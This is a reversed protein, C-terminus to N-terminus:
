LKLRSPEIIYELKAVIKEITSKVGFATGCSVCCFPEEEKIMAPGGTFAAFSLRPELGMVKEPCTARCLGCQVCLGEDFRLLPGAEADAFLAAEKALGATMGQELGVRVAELARKGAGGRGAWDLQRLIRQLFDDELVADLSVDAATEWRAAAAQREAFAQGLASEAGRKVFDRVAAHAASLADEAGSVLEDVM